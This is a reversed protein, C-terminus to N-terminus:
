YIPLNAPRNVYVGETGRERTRHFREHGGLSRVSESKSSIEFWASLADLKSRVESRHRESLMKRRGYFLGNILYVPNANRHRHSSKHRNRRHEPTVRHRVPRTGHHNPTPRRGIRSYPSSINM